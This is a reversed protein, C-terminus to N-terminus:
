GYRATRVWLLKSPKLREQILSRMTSLPSPNATAGGDGFARRVGDMLGFRGDVAAVAITSGGGVVSGLAAPVRSEGRSIVIFPMGGAWDGRIGELSKRVGAETGTSLDRGAPMRFGEGHQGYPQGKMAELLPRECNAFELIGNFFEGNRRPQDGSEM